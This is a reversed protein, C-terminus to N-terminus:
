EGARRDGHGASPLRRALGLSAATDNLRNVTELPLEVGHASSGQRRDNELDGPVVTPRGNRDPTRHLRDRYETMRQAFLGASERLDIALLLHATRSTDAPSEYMSLVDYSHAGGSFVGCLVDVAYALAMGKHGAMPQLYGNFAATPDATPVGHVDTAWDLPIQERNAAAASIRGAAAVSFAMDVVFPYDRAPAAISVPNNGTVPRTGGPPVMLPKVNTMAIGLMGADAAMRTFTAAAGFHNSNSIGVVGVGYESALEMARQMGRRAVVIGFGEHADFVETAHFGRLLELRPDPRVVGATLRRAYIPVRMVGHSEVGSRDADVLADATFDADDQSMGCALMLESVFGVLEEAKIRVRSSM